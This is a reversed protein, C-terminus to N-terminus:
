PAVSPAVAAFGQSGGGLAAYLSVRSSLLARKSQVLQQEALLLDRQADLVELFAAAGNDYRLRSLRAREAQTALGTRAITVQEDLWRRASLADSVDRFAGQVTKDYNAMAIDRRTETLSLNSRLQGGDFLPLSVSPSFAWASSGSAFLGVLEASATGFSGTLAVRPFFAARAAGIDANAARLQNEAAVIDPRNVLLDSPMGASLEVLMTQEDLRGSMPPLAVPSGVLLTLAHDQAARSQELQVTLAQAQNLLTEVQTLALRSTAGVAVRRSFIRLTEARSELTLRALAIREDLELLTLYGNAVQAVLAVMVARRAADSALFTQLAADKLSRVRGWLDIEWSALGLGVQYQSLVLPQRTLNLGGPVRTRDFGAQAGLTPFQDARRIGYASRAEEVRLLAIRLDRNNALAQVILARLDNSAFYDHWGVNAPNSGVRDGEAAYRAAVPLAPVELPPAMSSCGSLAAAFALALKPALCPWLGPPNSSPEVAAGIAHAGERRIGILSGSKPSRFPGLETSIRARAAADQVCM